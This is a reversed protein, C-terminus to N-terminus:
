DNEPNSRRRSLVDALFDLTAPDEIAVTLGQEACADLAAGVWEDGTMTTSEASM